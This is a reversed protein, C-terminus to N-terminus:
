ATVAVQITGLLALLDLLGVPERQHLGVQGIRVGRRRGDVRDLSGRLRNDVQHAPEGGPWPDM